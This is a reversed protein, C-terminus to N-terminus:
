GLLDEETDFPLDSGADQWDEYGDDWDADTVVAGALPEGDSLKMVGNLGFTIGRNGATDYAYANIIARGYCGSYIETPDTIPLKDADVIVPKTKSSVTIVWCGKCEPGFEEGSERTGDGDHLTNKVPPKKGPNREAYNERAAAIAAKIKKLTYDDSKKILLTVSYKPESGELARPEFIHCFSFRVRGTTIQTKGSM